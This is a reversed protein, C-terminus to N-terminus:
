RFFPTAGSGSQGGKSEQFYLEAVVGSVTSISKTDTMGELDRWENLRGKWIPSLAKEPRAVQEYTTGEDLSLRLVRLCYIVVKRMELAVGLWAETESYLAAKTFPNAYLERRLVAILSYTTKNDWKNPPNGKPGVSQLIASSGALDF